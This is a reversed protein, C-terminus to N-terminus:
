HHANKEANCHVWNWPGFGRPLILSLCLRGSHFRGGTSNFPISIAAAAVAVAAAAAVARGQDRPDQYWHQENDHRDNGPAQHAPADAKNVTPTNSKRTGALRVRLHFADLAGATVHSHHPSTM